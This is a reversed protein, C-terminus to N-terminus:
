TSPELFICTILRSPKHYCSNCGSKGSSGPFIRSLLRTINSAASRSQPYWGTSRPMAASVYSHGHVETQRVDYIQM